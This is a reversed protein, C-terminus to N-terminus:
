SCAGFELQGRQTANRFFQLLHALLGSLGGQLSKRANSQLACVENWAFESSLVDAGVDFVSWYFSEM